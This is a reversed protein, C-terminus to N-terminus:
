KTEEAIQRVGIKLNKGPALPQRTLETRNTINSETSLREILVLVTNTKHNHLEFAGLTGDQLSFDMLVRADVPQNHSGWYIMTIILAGWALTTVIATLFIIKPKSQMVDCLLDILEHGREGAVLIRLVEAGCGQGVRQVSIIKGRDV